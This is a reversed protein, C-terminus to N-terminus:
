LRLVPSRSFRPPPGTAEAAGASLRSPGTSAGDALDAVVAVAAREPACPGPAADSILAPAGDREHGPGVSCCSGARLSPVSPGDAACSKCRSDSSPMEMGCRMFAAQCPTAVGALFATLLITGILRKM